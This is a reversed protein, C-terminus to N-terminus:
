KMVGSRGTGGPVGDCYHPKGAGKDGKGRGGGRGGGRVVWCTRSTKRGFDRKFRDEERREGSGEQPRCGEDRAQIGATAKVCRQWNGGAMACEAIRTIKEFCLSLWTEARILGEWAEEPGWATSWLGESLPHSAREVVCAGEMVRTMNVKRHDASVQKTWM